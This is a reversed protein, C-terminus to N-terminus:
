LQKLVQESYDALESFFKVDTQIGSFHKGAIERKNTRDTLHGNLIIAKIRKKEDTDLQSIDIKKLRDFVAPRFEKKEDEEEILLRHSAGEIEDYDHTSFAIAIIEDTSPKPTLLMLNFYHGNDRDIMYKLWNNGTKPDLYKETWGYNSSELLTLEKLFRSANGM